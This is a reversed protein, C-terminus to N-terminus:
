LYPMLPAHARLEDRAPRFDPCIREVV